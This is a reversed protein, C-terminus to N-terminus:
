WSGKEESVIEDRDKWEDVQVYFHAAYEISAYIDKRPQKINLAKAAALQGGDADRGGKALPDAKENGEM